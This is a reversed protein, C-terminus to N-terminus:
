PRQILPTSRRNKGVQYRIAGDRCVALCDFCRVCRSNAVYRESVKICSAPCVDECKGCSSCKDPDIEIRMLYHDHLLGMATGYPCIKTCFDRGTFMAYVALFVISVIGAIVAIGIGVGLNIWTAEVASPRVLASINQMIRWPEIMYCVPLIGAFLCIVYVVLIHVSWRSQKKYTYIKPKRGFRKRVWSFIDTLTGVPCVTSCYLRGFIITMILWVFAAGISVAVSSFVVQTLESVKAMPHVHPGIMLYAVTAVFFFTALFIRFVRLQRM